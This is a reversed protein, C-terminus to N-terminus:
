SGVNPKYINGSHLSWTNELKMGGSITVKENPYAMYVNPAGASGSDQENFELTENLYYIGVRIYVTNGTTGRITDRAKQITKFPMNITGPNLDSGDTAVYYTAGLADTQPLIIVIIALLLAYLILNKM